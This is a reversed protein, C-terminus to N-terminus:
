ALKGKDSRKLNALALGFVGLAITFMLGIFWQTLAFLRGIESHVSDIDARTREQITDLQQRLMPVALAKEPTAVLANELSALRAQLRDQNAKVEDLLHRDPPSLEAYPQPSNSPQRAKDLAARLSAITNRLENVERRASEAHRAAETALDSERLAERMRVASIQSDRYSFFTAVITGLM